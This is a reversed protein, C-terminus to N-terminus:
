VTVNFAIYPVYVYVSAPGGEDSASHGIFYHDLIVALVRATGNRRACLIVSMYMDQTLRNWHVTVQFCTSGVRGISGAEKLVQM